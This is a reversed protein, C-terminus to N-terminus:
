IRSFNSSTSCGSKNVAKKSSKWSGNMSKKKRSRRSLIKILKFQNTWINIWQV